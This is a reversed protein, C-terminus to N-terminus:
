FYFFFLSLSFFQLVSFQYLNFSTLLFLPLISSFFLYYMFNIYILPLWFFFLFLLLFCLSFLFFILSLFRFCIYIHPVLKDMSVIMRRPTIFSILLLLPLTPFSFIVFFPFSYLLVFFYFLVLNGWNVDMRAWWWERRRPTILDNISPLVTTKM